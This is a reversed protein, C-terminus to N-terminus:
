ILVALQDALISHITVVIECVFFAFIVVGLDRCLLADRASPQHAPTPFSQPRAIDNPVELAGPAGSMQAEEESMVLGLAGPAGSM